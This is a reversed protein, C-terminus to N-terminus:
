AFLRAIEGMPLFLRRESITLPLFDYAKYFSAAREDKADVIIAYTAIESRLSRAFADMLMQEGLREGRHRHDVALRGLLTAPLSPYRPLRKSLAAPLEVLAVSTAALTYFGRPTLGEDVVVFCSAVRRRM